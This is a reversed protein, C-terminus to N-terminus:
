LVYKNQSLKFCLSESIALKKSNVKNAKLSIEGWFISECVSTHFIRLYFFNLWMISYYRWPKLKTSMTEQTNFDAFCIKKLPISLSWLVHITQRLSVISLKDTKLKQYAIYESLVM